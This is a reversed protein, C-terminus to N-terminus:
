DQNKIEEIIQNITKEFNTDKQIAEEIKNFAHIVTSHDKRGFDRGIDILSQETLRRCLYMAVHRPLTFTKHRKKSRLDAVRVGYFKAVIKQIAETTIIEDYEESEDPAIDKLAEKVVEVSLPVNDLDALALARILCGELERINTTVRDAIFMAVDDPLHNLGLEESKKRLIAIRTEVEPPEIVTILGWEFRSRLREELAPIDRPHSDSTLVIQKQANYLANFTHFFEEQTGEKARIFQIDDILLVDVTRYKNRFQPMPTGRRLSEIMENTFEESSMYSVKLEKHTEKISNGIAHMLHTKGLGVRGYIYLPNYVKAPSESVALSATYSFRNSPGVVFSDFSYKPNLAFADSSGKKPEPTSKTENQEIVSDTQIIFKIEIENGTINQLANQIQKLHEGEIYEKTFTNPVIVHLIGDTLTEARTLSLCMDTQGLSREVAEMAKSWVEIATKDAM